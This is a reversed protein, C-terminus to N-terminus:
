DFKKKTISSLVKFYIIYYVLYVLSQINVVRQAHYAFHSVFGINVSLNNLSIKTLYYVCFFLTRNQQFWGQANTMLGLWLTFIVFSIAM